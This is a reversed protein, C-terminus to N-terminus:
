RLRRGYLAQGQEEKGAENEYTSGLGRVYHRESVSFGNVQHLGEAKNTRSGTTGTSCYTVQGEPDVNGM